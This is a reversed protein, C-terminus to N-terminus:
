ALMGEAPGSISLTGGAALPVSSSGVIDIDTVGFAHAIGTLVRNHPMGSGKGPKVAPGTLPWRRYQGWQLGFGSGGFLFIPYNSVQHDGNGMENLWVVLTNDLMTGSGEPISDLLGVIEAIRNANHTDHLAMYAAAQADGINHTGHAISDHAWGHVDGPPAGFLEPDLQPVSMSAVRSLDCAFATAVMETMLTSRLDLTGSWGPHDHRDPAECPTQAFGAVRQELERIMQKHQDLKLRDEQSLRPDLREYEEAVHDLVSAQRAYLRSTVTPEPGTPTAGGPFLRDWLADVRAERPLAQTPVACSIGLGQGAGVSLSLELSRIHDPRAIAEAVVQDISVSTARTDEYNTPPETTPAGSMGCVPGVFHGNGGQNYLPLMDLGDFAMMRDRYPWLPQLIESFEGQTLPTMDFSFAESESQGSPRMKWNPYLLGGYTLVIFMRRPPGAAGGATSRPALSPLFLSGAGLGLAQLLRRRGLNPKSSPAKM